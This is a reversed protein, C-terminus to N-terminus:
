DCTDNRQEAEVILKRKLTMWWTKSNSLKGGRNYEKRYVEEWETLCSLARELSMANDNWKFCLIPAVRAFERQGYIMDLVLERKTNPNGWWSGDGSSRDPNPNSHISKDGFGWAHPPDFIVALFRNDSFPLSRWNCIIDPKYTLGNEKDTFMIYPSDRNPLHRWMMRNGATVDLIKAKPKIM